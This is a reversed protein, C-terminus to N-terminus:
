GASQILQWIREDHLPPDVATVGLPALADLVANVIAAPTGINGAEGAGKAGFPQQPSPTDFHGTTWRLVAHATPMAYDLLSGTLVSGDEDYVMREFLAEGLGHAMSGHIQGEVILPNVITGSDDVAILREVQVRGTDRDISILAVYAGAAMVDAPASVKADDVKADFV